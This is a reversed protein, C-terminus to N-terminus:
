RRLQAELEAVRLRLQLNEESLEELVTRWPEDGAASKTAPTRPAQGRTATSPEADELTIGRRQAYGELESRPVWVATVRGTKKDEEREVQITGRDIAADVPKRNSFGLLRAAEAPRYRDKPM